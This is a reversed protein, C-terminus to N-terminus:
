RISRCANPSTLCDATTFRSLFKKVAMQRKAYIRFKPFLSDLTSGKKMAESLDALIHLERTIAWLILTPEM